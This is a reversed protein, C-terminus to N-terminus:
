KLPSAIVELAHVTNRHWRDPCSITVEDGPHCVQVPQWAAPFSCDAKKLFDQFLLRFSREAAAVTTVNRHYYSMVTVRIPSRDSIDLGDSSVCVCVAPIGLQKVTPATTDFHRERVAWSCFSMEYSFNFYIFLFSFLVSYLADLIHLWSIPRSTHTCDDVSHLTWRCLTTDM